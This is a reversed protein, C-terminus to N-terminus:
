KKIKVKAGAGRAPFLKKYSKLKKAPVKIVAKTRIGKFAQKGVKKATLKVTKVTIKQLKSCKNFAKANIRGVNKGITVSKLYKYGSFANKGISTIKYSRGKIKVENSIKLSTFKKDSKKRTTGTLSVEGKGKTVAKTIKYKLKGAVVTKGVKVTDEETGDSPEPSPSPDGKQAPVPSPSPEPSPSPKPTEEPKPSASPDQTETVKGEGIVINTFGTGTVCYINDETEAKLEQLKGTDASYAYIKANERDPSVPIYLKYDSTLTDANALEIKYVLPNDLQQSIKTYEDQGSTLQQAQIWAEKNGDPYTVAAFIGTDEDVVTLTGKVLPHISKENYVFNTGVKLIDCGYGTVDAKKGHTQLWVSVARRAILKKLAPIGEM